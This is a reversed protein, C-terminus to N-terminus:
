WFFKKVRRECDKQHETLVEYRKHSLRKILGLEVMDKIIDPVFIRPIGMRITYSILAKLANTRVFNGRNRERLKIYIFAYMVPVDKKM